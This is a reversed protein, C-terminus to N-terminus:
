KTISKSLVSKAADFAFGQKFHQSDHPHVNRHPGNRQFDMVSNANTLKRPERAEM